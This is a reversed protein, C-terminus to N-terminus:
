LAFTLSTTRSKRWFGFYLLHDVFFKNWFSQVRACIRKLQKVPKTCRRSVIVSSLIAKPISPSLHINL